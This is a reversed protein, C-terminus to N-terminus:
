RTRAVEACHAVLSRAIGRRRMNPDVFLADLESEGDARPKVAAFGVITGRCEAVFVWGRRDARCIEGLPRLAVDLGELLFSANSTPPCSRTGTVMSSVKRRSPSNSPISGPVLLGFREVEQALASTTEAHSIVDDRKTGSLGIVLHDPHFPRRVLCGLPRQLGVAVSDIDGAERQKPLRECDGSAPFRNLHRLLIAVNLVELM